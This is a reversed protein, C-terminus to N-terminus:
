LRRGFLRRSRNRLWRMRKELWRQCNDMRAQAYLMGPVGCSIFLFIGVARFLHITMAVSSLVYMLATVVVIACIFWYAFLRKPFRAKEVRLRALNEGAGLTRVLGFAQELDACLPLNLRTGDSFILRGTMSQANFDVLDSWSQRVEDGRKWVVQIEDRNMSLSSLHPCIKANQMKLCIYYLLAPLFAINMGAILVGLVQLFPSLGAMNSWGNIVMAAGSAVIVLLLTPLIFYFVVEEGRNRPPRQWVVREGNLWRNRFNRRRARTAVRVENSDRLRLIVSAECDGESTNPDEDVRYEYMTPHVRKLDEWAFCRGVLEPPNKPHDKVVLGELRVGARCRIVHKRRHRKMREGFLPTDDPM